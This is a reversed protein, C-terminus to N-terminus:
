HVSTGWSWGRPDWVGPGVQCRSCPAAAPGSVSGEGGLGMRNPLEREPSTRERFAVDGLKVGKDPKWFYCNSDGDRHATSTGVGYWAIFHCQGRWSNRLYCKLTAELERSKSVSTGKLSSPVEITGFLVAVPVWSGLDGPKAVGPIFGLDQSLVAPTMDAVIQFIILTSHYPRL